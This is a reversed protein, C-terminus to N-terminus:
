ISWVAILRDYPDRDSGDNFRSSRIARGSGIQYWASSIQTRKKRVQSSAQIEVKAMDFVVLDTRTQEYEALPSNWKADSENPRAPLYRPIDPFAVSLYM